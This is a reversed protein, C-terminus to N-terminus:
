LLPALWSVFSLVNVAKLIWFLFMEMGVLLFFRSIIVRLFYGMAKMPCVDAKEGSIDFVSVTGAVLFLTKNDSSVLTEYGRRNIKM